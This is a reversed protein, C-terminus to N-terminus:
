AEVSESREDSEARIGGEGGDAGARELDCQSSRRSQSASLFSTEGFRTARLRVFGVREAMRRQESSAGRGIPRPAGDDPGKGPPIRNQEQDPVRISNPIHGGACWFSMRHSVRPVPWSVV